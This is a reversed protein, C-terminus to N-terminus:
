VVVVDSSHSEGYVDDGGFDSNVTYSGDALTLNISATGNSDTKLTYTNDNIAVTIFKDSLNNGAEDTLQVSFTDSYEFQSSSIMVLSTATKTDNASLMFGALVILFICLVAVAIWKVPYSKEVRSRKIYSGCKSCFLSDDSIIEGCNKCKRAM